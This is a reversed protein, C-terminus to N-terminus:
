IASTPSSVLALTRRRMSDEEPIPPKELRWRRRCGQSLSVPFWVHRNKRSLSKLDSWPLAQPRLHNSMKNNLGLLRAQSHSQKGLSEPQDCIQSPCRTSREAAECILFEALGEYWPHRGRPLSPGHTIGIEGRSVTIIFRADLSSLFAGLGFVCLYKGRVM